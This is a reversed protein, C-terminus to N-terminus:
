RSPMAIVWAEVASEITEGAPAATPIAADYEINREQFNGADATASATATAPIQFWSAFRANGTMARASNVSSSSVWRASCVAASM